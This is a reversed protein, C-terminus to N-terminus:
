RIEWEGAGRALAVIDKICREVTNLAVTRVGNGVLPDACAEVADLLADAIERASPAGYPASVPSRDALPELGAGVPQPPVIPPYDGQGEPTQQRPRGINSEIDHAAAYLSRRVTENDTREDALDRVIKVALALGADFGPSPRAKTRDITERAGALYGENYIGVNEATRKWNM